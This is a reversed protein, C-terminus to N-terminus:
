QFYEDNPYKLYIESLLECAEIYKGEMLMTGVAIQNEDSFGEYQTAQTFQTAVDDEQERRKKGPTRLPGAEPRAFSASKRM